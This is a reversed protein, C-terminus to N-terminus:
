GRERTRSFNAHIVEHDGFPSREIHTVVSQATSGIPLMQVAADCWVSVMYQQLSCAAFFLRVNSLLAAELADTYSVVAHTM